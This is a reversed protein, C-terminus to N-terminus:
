PTARGRAANKQGIKKRTETQFHEVDQIVSELSPRRQSLGCCKEGIDEIFALDTNKDSIVNLLHGLSYIDTKVSHHCVGEIVEPAMQPCHDYCWSKITSNLRLAPPPPDLQTALGLDIIKGAWKHCKYIDRWIIINGGHLDNHSWGANHLALLGRSIDLCIQIWDLTEINAPSNKLVTYLDKSTMTVPDGVFEIGFTKQDIIGCVKPFENLHQVAIMMRIEKIMKQYAKMHDRVNKLRKVAVLSGDVTKRKLFVEGSAGNGLCVPFGQSLVDELESEQLIPIFSSEAPLPASLLPSSSPTHTLHASVSSSPEKKQNKAKIQPPTQPEHM